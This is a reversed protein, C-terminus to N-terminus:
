HPLGGVWDDAPPQQSFQRCAQLYLNLLHEDRSRSLEAFISEAQGWNRGRFAQLAEGYRSLQQLEQESVEEVLGLPQFLRAPKELGRIPAIDVERYLYHDAAQKTSESVLVPLQYNKTLQEIRAALNVGEGIATYNMRSRSGLNGVVADCTNIGIGTALPQGFFTNKRNLEVMAAQFSLAARVSYNAHEELDNPAGFFAMAGDGLYKDVVGLNAEIEQSFCSFYRNLMELTDAASLRSSISTFSRIDTFMVSIEREEGGLKLDKGILTQAVQPSVVKGLINRAEEKFRSEQHAHQEVKRLRAELFSFTLTAGFLLAGLIGASIFASTGAGQQLAVLVQAYLAATAAVAAVFLALRYPTILGALAASPLMLYFVGSEVGGSAYGLFALFIMDLVFNVTTSRNTASLFQRSLLSGLAVLMFWALAGYLFADAHHTTFLGTNGGLFYLLLLM